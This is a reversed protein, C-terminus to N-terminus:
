ARAKALAARIHPIQASPYENMAKQLDSPLSDLYAQVVALPVGSQAITTKTQKSLGVAM